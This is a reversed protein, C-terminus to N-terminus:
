VLQSLGELWDYILRLSDEWNGASDNQYLLNTVTSWAGEPHGFEEGQDRVRVRLSLGAM